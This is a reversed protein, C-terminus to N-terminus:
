DNIGHLNHHTITLLCCFIMQCEIYDSPKKKGHLGLCSYIIMINISLVRVHLLVHGTISSVMLGVINFVLIQICHSAVHHTNQLKNELWQWLISDSNQLKCLCFAPLLSTKKLLGGSILSTQLCVQLLAAFVCLSCYLDCM